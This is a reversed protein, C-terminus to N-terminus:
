LRELKVAQMNNRNMSDMINGNPTILWIVPVGTNEFEEVDSKSLYGDTTVVLVSYAVKHERLKDIAPSLVTGGNARRTITTTSKTLKEPLSPVTDVQVVTISTNFTSCLTLLREWLAKLEADSVSGSVDSIVAVDFLRDKKVGKVWNCKPQRRNKRLLTKKRGAKRSGLVRKVLTEWQVDKKPRLNELMALYESPYSGIAKHTAEGSKEVMRRTVEKQVEPDVEGGEGWASHDDLLEGIEKQGSGAANDSDGGDQKKSGFDIISYYYENTKFPMVTKEKTPLNSPTICGKPLHDKNIFQNLACDTAYNYKLLDLQGTKIQETMGILHGMCVHSMEHKLVGLRHVLPLDKCFGHVISGDKRVGLEQSPNIHLTYKNDSFSVAAIAKIDKDFSIKCQSLLHLYFYYEAFYPSVSLTMTSITEDFADRETNKGM